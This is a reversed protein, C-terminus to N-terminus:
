HKSAQLAGLVDVRNVNFTVNEHQCNKEIRSRPMKEVREQTWYSPQLIIQRCRHKRGDKTNIEKM